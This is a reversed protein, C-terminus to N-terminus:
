HLVDLVYSCHRNRERYDHMSLVTGPAVVLGQSVNNVEYGRGVGALVRDAADSLRHLVLPTEASM